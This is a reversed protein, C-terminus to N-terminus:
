IKEGKLGQLVLEKARNNLAEEEAEAIVPTMVVMLEAIALTGAVTWSSLKPSAAYKRFLDPSDMLGVIAGYLAEKVNNKKM